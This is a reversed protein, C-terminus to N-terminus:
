TCKNQPQCYEPYGDKDVITESCFCKLFHKICYSETKDFKFTMYLANLFSFECLKYIMLKQMLKILSGDSDLKLFPLEACIADDIM